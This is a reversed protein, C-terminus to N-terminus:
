IREWTIVSQQGSPRPPPRLVLTDGDLTVKRVQETGIWSRSVSVEVTTTLTMTAEDFRCPGCYAIYRAPGAVLAAAPELPATEPLMIQGSMFGHAVFLLLGSVGEGYPLTVTGDPEQTEWCSLSWVGVIQDFVTM